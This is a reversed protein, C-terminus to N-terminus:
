HFNCRRYSVVIDRIEQDSRSCLIEILTSEKTGLSQIAEHIEDALFDATPKCLAKLVDEFDGSTEKELHHTLDKSLQCTLTLDSLEFCNACKLPILSSFVKGFSAKYAQVIQVRQNSTRRCLIDILGEEDTGLGKMAKHQADADARADFPDAPVVTPINQLPRTFSDISISHAM